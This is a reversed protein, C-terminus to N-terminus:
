ENGNADLPVAHYGMEGILAVLAASLEASPAAPDRPSVVAERTILNVQVEAVRPDNALGREIAAACNGCHMGEIRLRIVAM